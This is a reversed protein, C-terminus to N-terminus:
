DEGKFYRKHGNESLMLDILQVYRDWAYSSEDARGVSMSAMVDTMRKIAELQAPSVDLKNGASAQMDFPVSKGNGPKRGLGHIIVEKPKAAEATADLTANAEALQALVLEVAEYANTEDIERDNIEYGHENLLEIIRALQNNM